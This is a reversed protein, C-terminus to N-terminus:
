WPLATWIRISIPEHRANADRLLQFLPDFAARSRGVSKAARDLGPLICGETDAATNGPHIRVGAFGSVNLLLPLDRQFRQSRTIDIDYVGFPIATKGAIKWAPWGQGKKERVADEVTWALWVDDVVLSGITVDADLQVRELELKM